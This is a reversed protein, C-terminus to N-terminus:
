RHPGQDFAKKYDGVKPAKKALSKPKKASKKSSADTKKKSTM